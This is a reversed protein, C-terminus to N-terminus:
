GNNNIYNPCYWNSWKLEVESEAEIRRTLIPIDPLDPISIRQGLGVPGYQRTDGQLCQLTIPCVFEEEREEQEITFHNTIHAMGIACFFQLGNNYIDQARKSLSQLVEEPVDEPFNPYEAQVSELLNKMQESINLPADDQLSVDGSLVKVSQIVPAGSSTGSFSMDIKLVVYPTNTKALKQAIAANDAGLFRVQGDIFQYSKDTDEVINTTGDLEENDVTIVDEAM